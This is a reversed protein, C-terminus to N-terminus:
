SRPAAAIPCGQVVASITGRSVPVAMMAEPPRVVVSNRGTTKRFDGSAEPRRGQGEGLALRKVDTMADHGKQAVTQSRRDIPAIMELWRGGNMQGAPDITPRKEMAPVVTVVPLHLGMRHVAIPSAPMLPIEFNM